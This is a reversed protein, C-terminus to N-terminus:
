WADFVPPALEGLWSRVAVGLLRPLSQARVVPSVRSGRLGEAFRPCCALNAGCVLMRLRVKARHMLPSRSPASGVGLPRRFPNHISSPDSVANARTFRQVPPLTGLETAASHCRLVTMPSGFGCSPMLGM